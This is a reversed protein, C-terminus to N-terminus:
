DADIGLIRPIRGVQNVCLIVQASKLSGSCAIHAEFSDVDVVLQTANQWTADDSVLLNLLIRLYSNESLLKLM